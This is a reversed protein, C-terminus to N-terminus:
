ATIAISRLQELFHLDARAFQLLVPDAARTGAVWVRGSALEEKPESQQPESAWIAVDKALAPQWTRGVV